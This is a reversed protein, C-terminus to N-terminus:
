ATKKAQAKLLGQIVKSAQAKSTPKKSLAAAKEKNNYVAMAIAFIAKVQKFSRRAKPNKIVFEQTSLKIM